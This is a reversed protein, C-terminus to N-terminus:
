QLHCLQSETDPEQNQGSSDKDCYSVSDKVSNEVWVLFQMWM